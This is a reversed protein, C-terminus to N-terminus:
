RYGQDRTYGRLSKIFAPKTIKSQWARNNEMAQERYERPLTLGSTAAHECVSCSGCEQPHKPDLFFRFAANVGRSTTSISPVLELKQTPYPGDTLDCPEPGESTNQTGYTGLIMELASDSRQLYAHLARLNWDTSAYRDLLKFYDYGLTEYDRLLTPAIWMAKFVEDPKHHRLNMCKNRYYNFYPTEFGKDRTHAAQMRTHSKHWPCAMVFVDNPILKLDISTLARIAVLTERNKFVDYHLTIEECGLDLLYSVDQPTRTRLNVSASVKLDPFTRRTLEILTINALTVISIGLERVSAVFALFLRQYDPDLERNLAHTSSVVYNFEISKSALAKVIPALDGLTRAHDRGLARGGGLGDRFLSGYFSRVHASHDALVVDVLRRDGNFPMCFRAMAINEPM